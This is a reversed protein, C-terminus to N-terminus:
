ERERDRKERKEGREKDVSKAVSSEYRLSKMATEKGGDGRASRQM